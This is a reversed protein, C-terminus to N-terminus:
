PPGRRRANLDQQLADIVPSSANGERLVILAAEAEQYLGAEVAITVAALDSPTARLAAEARAADEPPLVLFRAEPLPPAPTTRPGEPTDAEVQWSLVRGAPLPTRPRWTLATLTPSEAITQLRDDVIRVRYGRAGRLSTWHLTPTPSLVATAVPNQPRFATASRDPSMLVGAGSAIGAGLRSAPLRRDRLMAVVRAAVDPPVGEGGVLRGDATLGVQRQRDGISVALTPPAGSSSGNPPASVPPTSPGGGQAQSSGDPRTQAARWIGFAIVAAAALGLPLTWRRRTGAPLREVATAAGPPPAFPVVRASAPPAAPGADAALAARLARLADVEARLAADDALHTEVIERDVDDLTGDVYADIQEDTLPMAEDAAQQLDARLTRLLEHQSRTM